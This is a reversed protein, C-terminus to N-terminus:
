LVLQLRTQFFHTKGVLDFRDISGYGYVIALRLNDSLYWNAMPTLRWMRGGRIPGADLDTYSYRAVIEWAGPGGQFVTRKPSVSEFYGGRTNYTRTEGTVLWTFVADGGHFLPNGSQPADVHQFFYETGFLLRGPRYYAELATMRTSDAAFTGTDVVYPAPFAEPRARLRLEGDEPTGYRHSVGVHLLTRGDAPLIPLWALRGSVQHHYTSFAQGKSLWDGYFGLNWLLHAQPAYGLWKIGDALIPITADSIPQRELTWGAYGVMVKNLSFGEKTRGVFVHGFVEPVAVMIGTERFLWEGTPGDYMIGSTWTVPRKFKLRGKLLVRFDRLKDQPTLDFQQESAADQAYGAYEYLLGAGGRITFFPGEYENWSVLRRAPESVEAEGAEMTDDLAAGPPRANAPQATQSTEPTTQARTEFGPACVAVAAFGIAAATRQIIRV